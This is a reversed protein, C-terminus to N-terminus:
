EISCPSIIKRNVMGFVYGNDTIGRFYTGWMDHKEEASVLGQLWYTMFCRSYGGNRLLYVAASIEGNEHMHLQIDPHQVKEKEDKSLDQLAFQLYADLSKAMNLILSDSDLNLIYQFSPLYHLLIHKHRAHYFQEIPMDNM